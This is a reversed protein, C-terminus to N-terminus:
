QIRAENAVAALELGTRQAAHIEDIAANRLFQVYFRIIEAYNEVSIRENAGHIRVLDERKLRMPLFRYGNDAIPAYHRSDTRGILLGPAVAADPFVQRVTRRLAAFSASGLDSVLSPESPETDVKRLSVDADDITARVHAVVAEVSDGPLIRFNVIAKAESPLANPKFGGSIVTPATTTRILANTARSGELRSILLPEFLWANAVVTRMLLPIDPALYEFMDSTPSVLKAPMQGTELRSLARGLRGVATHLPPMSSHGRPGKATLEITVSGKEAVGILAAPKKVGPVIGHTIVLGEDLTFDLRVGREALLAAIKAAGETGGLEEDHGFALYVTRHPQVELGLLYEVAELTAMLSGKMDMTGRGWIFGNAIEGDFPAHIWNTETGSEVPVVDMHAALLLPKLAPDSGPWTYLLSFDNVTERTLSAHVRPFSKEVFSHLELFAKGEVPTDRSYSITRLRIAESLRLSAAGM